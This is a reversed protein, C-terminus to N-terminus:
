CECVVLSAWGAAIEARCIWGAFMTSLAVLALVLRMRLDRKRLSSSFWGM